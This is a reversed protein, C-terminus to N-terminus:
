TSVEATFPLEPGPWNPNQEPPVGQLGNTGDRHVSILTILELPTEEGSAVRRGAFWIASRVNLISAM